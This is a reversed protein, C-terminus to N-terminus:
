FERWDQGVATALSAQMERADSAPKPKGPASRAAVPRAVAPKAAAAGAKM